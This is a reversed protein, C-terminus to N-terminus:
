IKGTGKELRKENKRGEKRKFRVGVKKWDGEKGWTWRERRGSEKEKLGGFGDYNYSNVQLPVMEKEYKSLGNFACHM